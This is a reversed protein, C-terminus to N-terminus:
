LKVLEIFNTFRLVRNGLAQFILHFKIMIPISVIDNIRESLVHYYDYDGKIIVAKDIQSHPKIYKHVSKLKAVYNKNNKEVFSQEIGKNGELQFIKLKPMKRSINLIEHYNYRQFVLLYKSCLLKVVDKMSM